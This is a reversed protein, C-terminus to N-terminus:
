KEAELVLESKGKGVVFVYEANTSYEKNNIEIVVKPKQLDMAKVFSKVRGFQGIHVGGKLYVLAGSEIPLVKLSKSNALNFLISDGVNGDFKKAVFTRGDHLTLQLFGGKVINKRIIKLLKLKAEDKSVPILSFFGKRNYVLRYGENLLPVEIVDMFGVPFKGNNRVKGDVLIKGEHLIKKVEKHTKACKLIYRMLVSLPMSGDLSHPGPMARTIWKTEKKEIPWSKLINLRSLHNKGMKSEEWLRRGEKTM